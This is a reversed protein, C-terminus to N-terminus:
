IAVGEKKLDNLIRFGSLLVTVVSLRVVMLELLLQM